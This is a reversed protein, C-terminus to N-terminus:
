RRVRRDSTRARYDNRAQLTASALDDLESEPIFDSLFPKGWSSRWRGVRVVLEGRRFSGAPFVQVGVDGARYSTVEKPLPGDNYPMGCERCYREVVKLPFLWRWPWRLRWRRRDNRVHFM